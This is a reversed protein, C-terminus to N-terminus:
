FSGCGICAGAGLLTCGACDGCCSDQEAAINHYLPSKRFNDSTWSFPQNDQNSSHTFNSNSLGVESEVSVRNESIKRIKLFAPAVICIFLMALIPQSRFLILSFLYGHIFMIRILFKLRPFKFEDRTLIKYSYMSFQPMVSVFILAWLQTNSLTTTFDGFMLFYHSWILFSVTLIKGFRDFIKKGTTIWIGLFSTQLCTYALIAGIWYMPEGLSITLVYIPLLISLFVINALCGNCHLIRGVQLVHYKHNGCLSIENM